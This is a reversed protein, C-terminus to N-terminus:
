DKWRCPSRFPLSPVKSASACSTFTSIGSPSVKQDGQKPISVSLNPTLQITLTTASSVLAPDHFKLTLFIMGCTQRPLIRNICCM